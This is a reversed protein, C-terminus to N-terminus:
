HEPGAPRRRRQRLPPGRHVARRRLAVPGPRLRAEVEPGVRGDAGAGGADVGQRAGAAAGRRRRGDVAGRRRHAVEPRGEGVREAHRDLRPPTHGPLRPLEGRGQLRPGEPAVHFLGQSARPDLRDQAPPAVQRLRAAGGAHDGARDPGDDERRGRPVGPLRAAPVARLEARAVEGPLAPQAPRPDARRGEARAQRHPRARGPAAPPRRAAADRHAQGLRAAQLRRRPM